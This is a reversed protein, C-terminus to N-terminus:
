PLFRALDGGPVLVTSTGTQLDTVAVDFHGVNQNAYNLTYRSYLLYRGDPSWSLDSYSANDEHLLVHAQTGDPKVLWVQNNTQTNDSGPVNRDIAIWQGDPSWAASYDAEGNPGGLDVTTGTGLTYVKIHLPSFDQTGAENGFLLSAGTPSWSESIASQFGLPVSISHGDALHYIMLTNNAISIYSLWQGDPSFTPSTSAFTQDQFVPQTKGTQLDLWWISYRPLSMDQTDELREYAIKQGDPYWEPSDCESQPCALVQRRQTGDANIAWIFSGGQAGFVTYLITKQDPSISYRTIGAAEQTYPAASGGSLPLMFLQDQGQSDSAVYLVRAHKLDFSPAGAAAQANLDSPQSQSVPSQLVTSTFRFSNLASITLGIGLGSVVVASLVPTYAAFRTLLDSRGIFRVGQVMAIGIAILVLALGVSFAVILLMGFPVRNVAVAVLLIAIADPCPVLGGSVGLALLSKLNVQNGPLAHSHGAHTGDDHSHQSHDHEHGGALHEHDHDHSLLPAQAISGARTGARISIGIRQRINSSLRDTKPLNRRSRWLALDGRRQFLLNLGFAIVFLGSIIELWPIILAPLIYHSAVLTILGLLLVSGTHTITVISGLFVADRTRGQSGVLYAGVLAKGHGPTLAHLSGLALSLLFAGALFLPSFQGAKVLGVLASTVATASNLQQPSAQATQAAPNAALNNALKSITASFNSPLNPTGSNWSTMLSTGAAPTASTPNPFVINFQLLGNNQAPQDFAAGAASTVAFWNLSNAELHANHLAFPLEGSSGAPWTYRLVVEIAEEGTRLLDVSAPWHIQQITYPGLAHGDLDVSFESLFPAVWAQAEAPSISGNHDQDAAAWAGDALFPGPVIKWDVQVGSEDLAITQSQIYMDAPHASVALAPRMLLSLMIFGAMGMLVARLYKPM